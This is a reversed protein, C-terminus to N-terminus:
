KKTAEMYVTIVFITDERKTFVCEIGAMNSHWKDSDEERWKM